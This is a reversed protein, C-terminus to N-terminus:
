KRSQSRRQESHYLQLEYVDDRGIDMLSAVTYRGDPHPLLGVDARHFVPDPPSELRDLMPWAPTARYVYYDHRHKLSLHADSRGVNVRLLLLDDASCLIVPPVFPNLDDSAVYLISAEPPRKLLFSVEILAGNRNLATATTRNRHIDVVAEANLLVHSPRRSGPRRRRSFSSSNM